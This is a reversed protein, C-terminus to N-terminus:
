AIVQGMELGRGRSAMLRYQRMVDEVQSLVGHHRAVNAIDSLSELSVLPIAVSKEKEALLGLLTWRMYDLYSPDLLTMEIGRRTWRTYNAMIVDLKECLGATKALDTIREDSTESTILRITEMKAEALLGVFSWRRYNSISQSLADLSM